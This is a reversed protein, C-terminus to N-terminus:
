AWARTEVFFPPLPLHPALRVPGSARFRRGKCWGMDRLVRKAANRRGGVVIADLRTTTM